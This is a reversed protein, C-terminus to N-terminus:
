KKNFFTVLAGMEPRLYQGEEEVPFRLRSAFPCRERRVTAPPCAGPSKAKYVHAGHFAEARVICIQDKFVKSIDREAIALDVEMETLDAMECLSASLGNSFASPNIMNGEEAKKSLIIGSIPAKVETNDLRWKAKDVDAEAAHIKEDRQGNKLLDWAIELRRTRFKM